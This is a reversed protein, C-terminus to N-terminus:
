LTKVVRFTADISNLKDWLDLTDGKIKYGFILIESESPVREMFLTSDGASWLYQITGGPEAHIAMTDNDTFTWTMGLYIPAPSGNLTADITTWVGYFARSPYSCTQKPCVTDDNSSCSCIWLAALAIAALAFWRVPPTKL